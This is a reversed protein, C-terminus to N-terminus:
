FTLALKNIVMFNNVVENAESEGKYYDGTFFYGAGVLYSLNNTLKYTATVDVEYGYKRGVWTAQPTKDAVAYSVSAMIDLKDVPRVGARLQAFYANTMPGSNASSGHGAQRRIKLSNVLRWRKKVVHNEPFFGM